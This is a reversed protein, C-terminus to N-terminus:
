SDDDPTAALQEGTVPDCGTGQSGDQLAAFIGDVQALVEDPVEADHVPALGIGESAADLLRVGGEGHFTAADGEVLAQLSLYVAQDVGIVYVGQAAAALIAGSGTAGGAGLIM